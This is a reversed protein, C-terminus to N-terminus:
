FLNSETEFLWSEIGGNLHSVPFGQSEM